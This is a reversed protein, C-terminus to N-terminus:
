IAWGVSHAGYNDCSFCFESLNISEVVQMLRNTYEESFHAILMNTAKENDYTFINVRKSNLKEELLMMGLLYRYAESFVGIRECAISELDCNVSFGVAVGGGSNQSNDTKSLSIDKVIFSNSSGHDNCPCDCDNDFHSFAYSDRLQLGEVDIGIFIESNELCPYIREDIQLKNMGTVIDFPERYLEMDTALDIIVVDATIATLSLFSIGTVNICIGRNTPVEILVGRYNLSPLLVGDKIRLGGSKYIEGKYDAHKSFAAQLDGLFRPKALENVSRWVGLFSSQESNAIKQLFETSIAPLDNVYKGSSPELSGCDRLGILNDFCDIM